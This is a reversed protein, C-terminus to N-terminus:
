HAPGRFNGVAHCSCPPRGRSSRPVSCALPIVGYAAALETPLWSVLPRDPRNMGRCRRDSRGKGGLGFFESVYHVSYSDILYLYDSQTLLLLVNAKAAPLTPNDVGSVIFAGTEYLFGVQEAALERSPRRSEIAILVNKLTEVLSAPDDALRAAIEALDRIPEADNSLQPEPTM